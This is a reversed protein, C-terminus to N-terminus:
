CERPFHASLIAIALFLSSFGSIRVLNTPFLNVLFLPTSNLPPLQWSRFRWLRWFRWFRWPRRKTSYKTSCAFPPCPAKWFRWFRWFRWVTMFAAGRLGLGGKGDDQYNIYDMADLIGGLDIPLTEPILSQFTCDSRDSRHEKRFAWVWRALSQASWRCLLSGWSPILGAIVLSHGRYQQFTYQVLITWFPGFSWKPWFSRIGFQIKANALGFYVLITWKPGNQGSSTWKPGNLDALRVRAM